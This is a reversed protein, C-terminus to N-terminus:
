GRLMSLMDRLSPWGPSEALSPLVARVAASRGSTRSLACGLNYRAQRLRQRVGRQVPLPFGAKQRALDLLTRVNERQAAV